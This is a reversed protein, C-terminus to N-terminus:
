PLSAPAQSGKMVIPLYIRNGVPRVDIYTTSRITASAGGGDNLGVGTGRVSIVWATSEDQPGGLVVLDVTAVTKCAPAEPLSVMSESHAAFNIEGEINDFGLADLQGFEGGVPIVREVKLQAPKFRARYAVRTAATTDGARSSVCIPLTIKEGVGVGTAALPASDLMVVPDTLTPAPPPPYPPPVGPGPPVTPGPTVSEPRLGTFLNRNTRCSAVNAHAGLLWMEGAVRAYISVRANPSPQEYTLEYRGTADSTTEVSAGGPVVLMVQANALGRGDHDSVYGSITCSATTRTLAPTAVLGVGLALALLAVMFHSPRRFSDQM